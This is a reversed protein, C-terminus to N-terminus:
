TTDLVASSGSIAAFDHRVGCLQSRWMVDVTLLALNVYIWDNPKDAITTFVGHFRIERIEKRTGTVFNVAWIKYGENERWAALQLAERGSTLLSDDGIATCTAYPWFRGSKEVELLYLTKHLQSLLQETLTPTSKTASRTKQSSDEAISPMPDTNVHDTEKSVDLASKDIQIHIQPAPPTQVLRWLVVAMFCTALGAIGWWKIRQFPTTAQVDTLTSKPEVVAERTAVTNPSDAEPPMAVISQATAEPTSPEKTTKSKDALLRFSFDPGTPSLRVVDGSRLTKTGTIAQQNVIVEGAGTASIRWDENDLLLLVIRNM